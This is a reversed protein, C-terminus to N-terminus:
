KLNKCAVDVEGDCAKKFLLKADALDKRGGLGRRELDGLNNCSALQGADCAKRYLARAKPLNKATGDGHATAVALGHCSRDSRECAKSFYTVARELDHKVGEGEFLLVGAHACTDALDPSSDEDCAKTAFGIALAVDAKVGEGAEYMSSLNACANGNGHECTDGFLSIAKQVDQTIGRGNRYAAGLQNCAETDKLDCGLKMMRASREFDPPSAQKALLGANFCGGAAGRECAREYAVIAGPLAKAEELKRGLAFCADDDACTEPKMPDLAPVVPTPEVPATVVVSAETSRAAFVGFGSAIQWGGLGIVALAAVIAQTRVLAGRGALLSAIGFGVAGAGGAVAIWDRYVFSTVVGNVTQMSSSSVHVLFPIAGAIAGISALAIWKPRSLSAVENKGACADCVLQADATYLIEAGSIAKNCGSCVSMVGGRRYAEREGWAASVM